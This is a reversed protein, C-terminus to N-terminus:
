APERVGTDTKMDKGGSQKPSPMVNERQGDAVNKKVSRTVM